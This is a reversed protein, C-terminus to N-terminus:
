FNRHLFKMRSKRQFARVSMKLFKSLTPLTSYKSMSFISVFHRVLNRFSNPYILFLLTNYCDSHYGRNSPLWYFYIFNHDYTLIITYNPLFRFRAKSRIRLKLIMVTDLRRLHNALRVLFKSGCSPTPCHKRKRKM